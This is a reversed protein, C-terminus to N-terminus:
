QLLLNTFEIKLQIDNNKKGPQMNRLQRRSNQTIKTRIAETNEKNENMM